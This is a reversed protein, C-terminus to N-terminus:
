KVTDTILLLRYKPPYNSSSTTMTTRRCSERSQLTSTCLIRWWLARSTFSSGSSCLRQMVSRPFHHLSFVSAPCSSSHRCSWRSSRTASQLSTTPFRVSSSDSTLKDGCVATEKFRAVHLVNPVFMLCSINGLNRQPM